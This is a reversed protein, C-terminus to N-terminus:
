HTKQKNKVEAGTPRFEEKDLSVVCHWLDRAPRAPETIAAPPLPVGGFGGGPRLGRDKEREGWLPQETGRQNAPRM